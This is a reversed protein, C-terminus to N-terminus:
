GREVGPRAPQYEAISHSNHELSRCGWGSTTLNGWFGPGFRQDTWLTSQARGVTANAGTTGPVTQLGPYVRRVPAGSGNSNNGTQNPVRGAVDGDAAGRTIPIPHGPFRSNAPTQACTGIAAGLLVFALFRDENTFSRLV